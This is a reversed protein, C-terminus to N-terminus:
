MKMGSKDEALTESRITYVREPCIREEASVRISRIEWTLVFFSQGVSNRRSHELAISNAGNQYADCKIM